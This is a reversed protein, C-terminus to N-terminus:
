SIACDSFFIGSWLGLPPFFSFHCKILYKYWSFMDYASHAAIGWYAVPNLMSTRLLDAVDSLRSGLEAFQVSSLRGRAPRCSCSGTHM